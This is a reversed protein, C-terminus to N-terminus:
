LSPPKHTTQAGSHKVIHLWYPKDMSAASLGAAMKNGAESQRYSRYGWVEHQNLSEWDRVSSLATLNPSALKQTTPRLDDLSNSVLVFSDAVQTAYFQVPAKQGETPKV